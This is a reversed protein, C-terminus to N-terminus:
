TSPTLVDGAVTFYCQSGDVALPSAGAVVGHKLWTAIRLDAGVGDAGVLVALSDTASGGSNVAISGSDVQRDDEITTTNLYTAGTHNDNTSMMVAGDQSTRVLVDGYLNNTTSDIFCKGYVTLTGVTFMPVEAAAARAPSEGAAAASAPVRRSFPTVATAVTDAASATPVKGLKALNIDAGVLSRDKVKSSTIASKKIKKNTVANKKLQKSGVSNKPLTAAAWSVGGIALFLALSSVVNAYSLRPRPM